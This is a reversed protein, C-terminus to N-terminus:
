RTFYTEFEVVFADGAEPTVQVSITARGVTPMVLISAFSGDSAALTDLSQIAADTELSKVFITVSRPHAARGSRTDRTLVTVHNTGVMNPHVRLTVTLSGHEATEEFQGGTHASATAPPLSTLWAVVGIVVSLLAAEAALTRAMRRAWNAERNGANTGPTAEGAQRRNLFAIALIPVLLFLKVLLARGYATGTLASWRPVHLWANYSGTVALVVVCGLALRSFRRPLGDLSVDTGAGRLHWALAAFAALGGVWTVTAVLHLWDSAVAVAPFRRVAGAHGTLPWTVLMVAGLALAGIWGARQQPVTLCLPTTRLLSRTLGLLMFGAAMRVMWWTGYNTTTLIGATEPRTAAQVFSAEMLVAAHNVFAILEAALTALAAAVTMTRLRRDADAVIQPVPVGPQLEGGAPAYAMLVFVLGGIWLCLAGLGVARVAASWLAWATSPRGSSAMVMTTDDPPEAAVGFGFYGDIQHGDVSNVRWVVTYAGSPLPALNVAVVTGDQQRETTGRDYRRGSKDLVRITNFGPEVSENFFLRVVKPVGGDVRAAAPPETRILVAHALASREAAFLLILAALVFRRLVIRM